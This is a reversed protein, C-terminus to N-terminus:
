HMLLPLLEALFDVARDLLQVVNLPLHFLDFKAAAGSCLATQPFQTALNTLAFRNSSRREVIQAVSKRHNPMAFLFGFPSLLVQDLGVQPQNNGDGLLVDVTAQM